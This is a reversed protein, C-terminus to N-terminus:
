ANLLLIPRRLQSSELSDLWCSKSSNPLAATVVYFFHHALQTQVSLKLVAIIWTQMNLLQFFLIGFEDRRLINRNPPNLISQLLRLLHSRVGHAIVWSRETERTIMSGTLWIRLATLMSNFDGLRGSSSCTRSSTRPKTDKRKLAYIPRCFPDWCLTFACRSFCIRESMRRFLYLQIIISIKKFAINQSFIIMWLLQIWRKITISIVKEWLDILLNAKISRDVIRYFLEM